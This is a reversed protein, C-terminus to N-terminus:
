AEFESLHTNALDITRPHSPTNLRPRFAHRFANEAESLDVCQPDAALLALRLGLAETVCESPEASPIRRQGLKKLLTGFWSGSRLDLHSPIREILARSSAKGIYEWTSDAFFFYLGTSDQASGAVLDSMTVTGFPKACRQLRVGVEALTAGRVTNWLVRM